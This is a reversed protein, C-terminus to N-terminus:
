PEQGDQLNLPNLSDMPIWKESPNFSIGFNRMQKALVHIPPKILSLTHQAYLPM